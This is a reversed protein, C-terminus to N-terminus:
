RYVLRIFFINEQLNKFLWDLTLFTVTFFVIFNLFDVVFVNLM